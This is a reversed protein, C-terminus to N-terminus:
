GPQNESPDVESAQEQMHDSSEVSKDVLSLTEDPVDGTGGESAPLEVVQGSTIQRLRELTHNAMLDVMVNSILNNMVERNTLRKAENKPLVQALSSMTRSAETQLEEPTVRIKEMEAIKSLTLTRKIRTEAVPRMEARLDDNSIQRTKLYLDMDMRQESLRHELDHVMDDIERELMQDPFRYESGDIIETLVADDYESNYSSSKQKELNNRIENRLEDVSTYEGFTAAFETTLEPLKRSKIEIIEYEFLATVGRYSEYPSEQSFTHSFNGTQGAEVGIFQRSFGPFPWENQNDADGGIIVQTTRERILAPDSDEISDAETGTRNAKIRISVLDTEMSPREVTTLEAYRGRLDELSQTVEEEDVKPPNYEKQVTKYDMLIAEAQLPVVFELTLPEKSPIDQLSGPGYPQIGAEDLAKPYIENALFDVAEELIPGEGYQRLIVAYPAKGPRFGPIKVKRAINRAGRRMADDLQEPDVQVTLKVQHKEIPTTEIKL